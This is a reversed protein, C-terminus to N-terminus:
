RNPIAPEGTRLREAGREHIQKRYRYHIKSLRILGAESLEYDRGKAVLRRVFRKEATAPAFTCRALDEVM